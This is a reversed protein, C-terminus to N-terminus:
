ENRLGTLNPRMARSLVAAKRRESPHTHPLLPYLPSHHPGLSHTHSTHRHSAHSSTRFIASGAAAAPPGLLCRSATCVVQVRVLLKCAQMPRCTEGRSAALCVLQRGIKAWPCCAASAAPAHAGACIRLTITAQRPCCAKPLAGALGAARVARFRGGQLQRHTRATATSEHDRTSAQQKYAPACPRGLGTLRSGGTTGWTFDRWSHLIPMLALNAHTCHQRSGEM